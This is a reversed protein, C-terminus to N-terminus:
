CPAGGVVARAGRASAFGPGGGRDALTNGESHGRAGGAPATFGAVAEVARSGPDVLYLRGSRGGPALLKHLEPSYRLDDFGISGETGPLALPEVTGAALLVSALFVTGNM